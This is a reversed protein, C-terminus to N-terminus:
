FADSVTMNGGLPVTLGLFASHSLDNATAPGRMQFLKGALM